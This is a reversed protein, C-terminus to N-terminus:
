AFNRQALTPAHDTADIVRGIQAETFGVAKAASIVSARVRWGHHRAEVALRRLAELRENALMRSVPEPGLLLRGLRSRKVPPRLTELGDHRSLELVRQELPSFEGAHDALAQALQPGPQVAARGLMAATESFDIFAMLLSRDPERARLM